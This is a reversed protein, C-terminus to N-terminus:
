RDRLTKQIQQILESLTKKGDNVLVIDPNEPAEFDENVGVVNEAEGALARSYLSKQDRQQLIDLPVDVYIEVYDSINKRSWQRVDAFMSITACIVTLGQKSLMYCLRSYSTALNKRDEPKHGLLNGYVERLSDGDLFVTAPNDAKILSYLKQGISTKGAGSLGTIWYVRGPTQNEVAHTLM